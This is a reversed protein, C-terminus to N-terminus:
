ATIAGLECCASEMIAAILGFMTEVLQIGAVL